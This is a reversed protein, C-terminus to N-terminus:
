WGLHKGQYTSQRKKYDKAVEDLEEEEERGYPDDDKSMRGMAYGFFFAIMWIVFFGFFSM